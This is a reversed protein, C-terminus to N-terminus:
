SGAGGIAGVQPLVTEITSKQNPMKVGKVKDESQM